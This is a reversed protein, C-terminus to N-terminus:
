CLRGFDKMVSYLLQWLREHTAGAVHSLLMMAWSSDAFAKVSTNANRRWALSKFSTGVVAAYVAVTAFGGAAVAAQLTALRALSCHSCVM